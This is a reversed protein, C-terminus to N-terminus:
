QLMDFKSVIAYNLVTCTNLIHQSLDTMAQVTQIAIM